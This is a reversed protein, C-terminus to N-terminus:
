TRLAAPPPFPVATDQCYLNSSIRASEFITPLGSGPHTGGGVLYVGQLEEFRNRPRLYLLQTFKHSLNFTAGKFISGQQEWDNPTIIREARIHEELDPLKLREKIIRLVNKRFATQTAPWDLGSDNNPAPALIYLTSHGEPALTPDSVCANQVYVSLDSTLSGQGFVANVNSRYDKAFIITHHNLPYRKDLGLYMMFTSCSYDKRRLKAPAYKRLVGEPVLHSMAHGFDANLFVADAAIEEGSALKVGTVRRGNLLLKEVPTKLRIEAGEARAAQAMAASIRNLGGIVHEIGYRHEIYPLMTFFAPCQWPSMGLYKSQFSFVMRLKEEKFYRGLNQFVTKTVALYPFARLLDMSLMSGLTAYDRQICPYLMEFRKGEERLFADLGADKEAFAARLQERMTEPNSSVLIERDDFVLRYMPDLARFELYESAKHGAEQFMEELIFRMMLFTPGTDFTYNGLRLPANRGGVEANKEYVSVDFGRHALIMASTLGGPGAGVIVIRKRTTM